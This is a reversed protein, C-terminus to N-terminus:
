SSSQSFSVVTAKSIISLVPVAIPMKTKQLSKVSAQFFM